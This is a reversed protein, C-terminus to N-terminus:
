VPQTIEDPYRKLIELIKDYSEVFVDVAHPAFQKGKQRVIEAYADAPAWGDKYSRKSVLADFVDAVAVIRSLFDIEEGRYGLYGNGDWREHHQLAIKRAMNMVEGPSNKLLEEGYTVHTKIVEFEEKTLKGPKELIEPPIMLKGIDHMMAALAIESCQSEGYGACSAMVKTYESVRKVHQGTQHSKSESIEAFSLIVSEQTRFMNENLLTRNIATSINNYFIRMPKRMQDTDESPPFVASVYLVLKEDNYFCMGVSNEQIKIFEQMPEKKVPYSFATDGVVSEVVSGHFTDKGRADGSIRKLVGNECFIGASTEPTCTFGLMASVASSVSQRIMEALESLDNVTYLTRSVNIITDLSKNRMESETNYEMFKNFINHAKAGVVNCIISIVIFMALRPLLGFIIVQKMTVLPDDFVVSTFVSVIHSIIMTVITAASTFFTLRKDFFMMSILLPLTFAMVMHFTLVAYAVGVAVVISAIIAYKMWEEYRGRIIMLLKPICMIVGCILTVVTFSTKDLIFVGATNLVDMIIMMLTCIILANATFVAAKKNSNKLLDKKM